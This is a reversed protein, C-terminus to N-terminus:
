TATRACVERSLRLRSGFVPGLKRYCGNLQLLDWNVPLSAVLTKVQSEFNDAIVVDDELIVLYPLGNGSDRDM